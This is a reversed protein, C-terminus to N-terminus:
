QLMEAHAGHEGAVIVKDGSVPVIGNLSMPQSLTIQTFSSGDDRSRLLQGNSSVLVLNGNDLFAGGTIGGKTGTELKEWTKGSDRSRLATGRLGFIVVVGPKGALGFFSGPYPTKIKVFRDQKRDLRQVLGLEGVIFVEDGAKGIAFLSYGDDNETRDIWPVWTKGGDDTKLILNFAGVVWGSNENEFWVDLFPKDAGDKKFRQADEFARALKPNSTPSSEQALNEYYRVMIDGYQRGDLQRVWSKGGDSSHLVVGDHGVAWGQQPTPFNVAVLDSSVPVPAQIWNEGSDHTVLIRGWSGVAVFTGAPRDIAAVAVVRSIAARPDIPAPVDLPLKVTPAALVPVLTAAMAIALLLRISIRRLM